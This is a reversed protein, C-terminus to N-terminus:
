EYLVPWTRGGRTNSHVHTKSRDESAVETCNEQRRPLCPEIDDLIRIQQIMIRSRRYQVRGGVADLLDPRARALKMLRIRDALRVQVFNHQEMMDNKFTLSGRWMCVPVRNGWNWFRRWDPPQEGPLLATLPSSVGGAQKPALPEEQKPEEQKSIPATRKDSSSSSGGRQLLGRAGQLVFFLQAKVVKAPKQLVRAARRIRFEVFLPYLLSASPLFADDHDIHSRRSSSHQHRGM